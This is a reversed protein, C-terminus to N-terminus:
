KAKIYRLKGEAYCAWKKKEPDIAWWTRTGEKKKGYCSVGTGRMLGGVIKGSLSAKNRINLGTRAIVRGSGLLEAKKTATKGSKGTKSSKSTSSSKTTKKVAVKSGNELAVIVHSKENLIIDGKKLYDDSKLYKSDLLINFKGTKQCASRLNGTWCDPSIKAGASICCAAVMSSCDCNCKTKIHAPTKTIGIKEWAKYMSLRHAAGQQSYGINNNEAIAKANSAIKNAMTQTKPRIIVNQGFQYWKGIKVEKKTQDGAKGNATGHESQSAWACKIAM